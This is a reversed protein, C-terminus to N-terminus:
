NCEERGCGVIIKDWTVNNVADSIATVLTNMYRISLKQFLLEQSM